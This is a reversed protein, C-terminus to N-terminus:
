QDQLVELIPGILNKDRFDNSFFVSRLLYSSSCKKSQFATRMKTGIHSIMLSPASPMRSPRGSLWLAPLPQHTEARLVQLRGRLRESRQLKPMEKPPQHLGRGAQPHKLRPSATNEQMEQFGKPHPKKPSMEEGEQSDKVKPGQARRLSRRVQQRQRTKARPSVHQRQRAKARPSLHQQRQRRRQRQKPLQKPDHVVVKQGAQNGAKAGAGQPNRIRVM